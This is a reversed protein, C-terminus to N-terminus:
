ARAQGRLDSKDSKRVQSIEVRTLGLETTGDDKV